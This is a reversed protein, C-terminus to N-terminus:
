LQGESHFFGNKYIKVKLLIWDRDYIYEKGDYLVGDKFIGDQLLENEKSYVKNYGNQKFELGKTNPADIKPARNNKSLDPQYYYECEKLKITTTNWDSFEVIENTDGNECFRYSKGIPKGDLLECTYELCGSESFCNMRGSEVSESQYTEFYDYESNNSFPYISVYKKHLMGKTYNSFGIPTKGDKSYLIWIGNKRNNIFNGIEVITSDSYGRDPFDKGYFIWLGQAGLSDFQNFKDKSKFNSFQKMLSNYNDNYEVKKEIPIAYNAEFSLNGNNHFVKYKGYLNGKADYYCIKKLKGNSHYTKLTDVRKYGYFTGKEKLFGNPWYLEYEGERKGNVYYIKSLISNNTKFHNIELCNISNSPLSETSVKVSDSYMSEPRDKGFYVWKGQKGNENRVNVQEQSFLPTLNLTFLYLLTFAKM